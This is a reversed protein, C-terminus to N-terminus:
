SEGLSIKRQVFELVDDFIPKIEDVETDIDSKMDSWIFKLIYGTMAYCYFASIKKIEKDSITAETSHNKIYEYFMDEVTTFVFREMWERSVSNFIHRTTKSKNQINHLLFKLRDWGDISAVDKQYSEFRQLAWSELLDFIDKFHYYFTNSSIECRSVLASVTIKGFPFEELMEEFTQMIIKETYNAMVNDEKKLYIACFGVAAALLGAALVLLWNRFYVNKVSKSLCSKEAM